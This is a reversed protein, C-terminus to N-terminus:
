RAKRRWRSPRALPLAIKRIIVSVPDRITAGQFATRAAESHPTSLIVFLGEKLGKERLADPFPAKLKWQGQEGTLTVSTELDIGNVTVRLDQVADRSITQQGAIFLGTSQELRDDRLWFGLRRDIWLSTVGNASKRAAHNGHFGEDELDILAEDPGIEMRLSGVGDLPTERAVFDQGILREIRTRTNAFMIDASYNQVTDLANKILEERLDDSSLAIEIQKELDKADACKALLGDHRHTIVEGVASTDSIVCPVGEEMAELLAQSCGGEYITPLVFLDSEQLIERVDSRFGLLSFRDQMGKAAIQTELEKRLDGDGVWVFHLNPHREILNFAATLLYPYGKQPSLRAVTTVVFADPDPLQLREDRTLPPDEAAAAMDDGALRHIGIPGVHFHDVTQPSLEFHQELLTASYASNAFWTQRNSQIAKRCPEYVFENESWEEPVLAFKILAPVGIAACAAIMGQGRKPWPLPIFVVDPRIKDLIRWAETQQARVLENNDSKVFTGNFATFHMGNRMVLAALNELADNLPFCAHVECEYNEVLDKGFSLANYECGGHDVTPIMILVKPARGTRSAINMLTEGRRAKM